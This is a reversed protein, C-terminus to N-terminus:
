KCSSIVEGLRLYLTLFFPPCGQAQRRAHLSGCFYVMFLNVWLFCGQHM